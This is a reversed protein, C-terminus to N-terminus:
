SRQTVSLSDSQITGKPPDSDTSGAHGFRWAADFLLAQVGLSSNKGGGQVAHRHTPTVVADALLACHSWPHGRDLFAAAMGLEGNKGAARGVAELTCFGHVENLRNNAGLTM